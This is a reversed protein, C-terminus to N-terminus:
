TDEVGIEHDLAAAGAPNRTKETKYALNRRTKYGTVPRTKVAM